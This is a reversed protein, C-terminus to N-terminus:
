AIRDHICITRFLIAMEQTIKESTPNAVINPSLKTQSESKYDAGIEKYTFLIKMKADQQKLDVM